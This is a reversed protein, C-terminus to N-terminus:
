LEHISLKAQESWYKNSLVSPMSCTAALKDTRPVPSDTSRLKVSWEHRSMTAPPISDHRDPEELNYEFSIKFPKYTYVDM